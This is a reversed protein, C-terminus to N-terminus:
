VCTNVGVVRRIPSSSYWQMLCNIQPHKKIHVVLTPKKWITWSKLESYPTTWKLSSKDLTMDFEWLLRAM